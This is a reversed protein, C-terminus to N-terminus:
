GSAPRKKEMSLINKEGERAYTVSDTVTRIFHVGLGGIPREEVPVDLPPPPATLPDFAVGDDTITVHVADEDATCAISISGPEGGYGYLIINSCAEDVALQIAFVLEDGCGALTEALFDAIAELASLDARVTLEAM